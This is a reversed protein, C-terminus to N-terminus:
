RGSGDDPNRPARRQSPPRVRRREHHVVIRYAISTLIATAFVWCFQYWYFFPFGWLEPERKAYSSVWMLAVIPILVLVVVIVVQALPFTATPESGNDTRPEPSSDM